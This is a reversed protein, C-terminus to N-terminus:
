SLVPGELESEQETNTVSNSRTITQAEHQNKRLHELNGPTLLIEGTHLQLKLARVGGLSLPSGQRHQSCFDDQM